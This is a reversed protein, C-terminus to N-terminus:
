TEARWDIGYVGQPYLEPQIPIPFEINGLRIKGAGRFCNKPSIIHMGEAKTHYVSDKRDPEEFLYMFELILPGKDNVFTLKYPQGDSVNFNKQSFIPELLRKVNDKDQLLIHVDLDTQKEGIEGTALLHRLVGRGLWYSVGESELSPKTLSALYLIDNESM